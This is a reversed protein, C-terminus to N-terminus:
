LAYNNFHGINSPRPRKNYDTTRVYRAIVDTTNYCLQKVHDCLVDSPDVLPVTRTEAHPRVAPNQIAARVSCINAFRRIGAM